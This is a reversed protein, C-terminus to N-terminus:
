AGPPFLCFPHGAPDLFVRVGEQPQHEALVAGCTVAHECAAEIDDARLDLHRMIQQQGPGAPWTPPVHNPEAQFSLGTSGSPPRLMVWDPEDEVVDWGLLRRYFDALSRPDPAGLVTASLALGPSSDMDAM